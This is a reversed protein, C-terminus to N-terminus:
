TKTKETSFERNVFHKFDQANSKLTKHHTKNIFNISLENSVDDNEDIADWDDEVKASNEVKSRLVHRSIIDPAKESVSNSNYRLYVTDKIKVDTHSERGLNSSSYLSIQEADQSLDAAAGYFDDAAIGQYRNSHKGERQSSYSVLSNFIPKM